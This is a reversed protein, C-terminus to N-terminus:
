WIILFLSFDLIEIGAYSRSILHRQIDLYTVVKALWRQLGSAGGSPSPRDSTGRSTWIDVDLEMEAISGEVVSIIGSNRTVSIVDGFGPSSLTMDGFDVSLEAKTLPLREEVNPRGVVVSINTGLKSQLYTKVSDLAKNIFDSSQYEPM